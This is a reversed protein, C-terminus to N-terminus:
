RRPLMSLRAHICIPFTEGLREFVSGTLRPPAAGAGSPLNINIARIPFEMLMMEFMSLIDQRGHEHRRRSCPADYNENLADRSSQTDHNNPTATNLLIMFPKGMTKLEDVRPAEADIYSSRAFRHHEATNVLIWRLM